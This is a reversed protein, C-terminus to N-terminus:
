AVKRFFMALLLAIGGAVCLLAAKRRILQKPPYVGANLSQLFTVISGTLMAAGLFFLFLYFKEM